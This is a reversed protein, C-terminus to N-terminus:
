VTLEFSFCVCFMARASDGHVQAEEVLFDLFSRYAMAWPEEQGDFPSGPGGSSLYFDCDRPPVDGLNRPEIHIVELALGPNHERAREAFPEVIGRLCRIGQNAVGNNMDIICVKL